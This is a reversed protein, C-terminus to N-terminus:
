PVVGDARAQVLIGCCLTSSDVPHSTPSLGLCLAAACPPPATDPLLAITAVLLLISSHRLANRYWWDRSRCQRWFRSWGSPPPEASREVLTSLLRHNEAVTRAAEALQATQRDRDLREREHQQALQELKDTLAVLGARWAEAERGFERVYQDHQAALERRLQDFADPRQGEDLTQLETTAPPAVAALPEQGHEVVIPYQTDLLHRVEKLSLQHKPMFEKMLKVLWEFRHKEYVVKPNIRRVAGRQAQYVEVYSTDATLVWPEFRTRWSRLTSENEHLEVSLDTLSM